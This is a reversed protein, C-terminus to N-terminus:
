APSAASRLLDLAEVATPAELAARAAEQCLERGARALADAVPEASAASLSLSDAGVGTLFVAGEPQGALEGCVGAKIGLRHAGGVAAAILRLVGPNFETLQPPWELERDAGLAYQTLDNTGLSVFDVLGRFSELRIAVAPLEVMMGLSPTGVGERRAETEFLRRVAEMEERAAVMPVMVCLNPHRAGARVLARVQLDRLREAALWLRVGRRGLAPNPEPGGPLDPLRKDSGADLTRINVPHPAIAACVAAYAEVQEEEGPASPRSLYLFETRFLGVGHLGAGAAAEVAAVSGANAMLPVPVTELHLSVPRSAAAPGTLEGPGLWSVTGSEGDVEAGAAASARAASLAGAAGVVAPIGLERAVIAVHSSPGGTETVFALIRGPEAALTDAPTLENAVVVSPRDVGGLRAGSEGALAAALLRGVERVDAGRAALYEDGSEELQVAYGEVAGTVADSAPRGAALSEEVTTLLAPDRALLAQAELISAADPAEQRRAAALAELRRGVQEAAGALSEPTAAVPRPATEAEQVLFLPGRARG